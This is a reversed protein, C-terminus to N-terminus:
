TKGPRRFRRRRAALMAYNKPPPHDPPRPLFVQPDIIKGGQSFKRDTGGADWHTLVHSLSMPRTSDHGWMQQPRNSNFELPPPGPSYKGRGNLPSITELPVLEADKVQEGDSQIRCAFLRHQLGSSESPSNSGKQDSDEDKEKVSVNQRDRDEKSERRGREGNRGGGRTEKKVGEWVRGRRRGDRQSTGATGNAGLIVNELDLIRPTTIRGDTSLKNLSIYEGTDELTRGTGTRNQEVQAAEVATSLPRISLYSTPIAAIDATYGLQPAPTSEPHVITSAISRGHSYRLELDHSQDSSASNKNQQDEETGVGGASLLLRSQAETNQRIGERVGEPAQAESSAVKLSDSSVTLSKSRSSCQSKQSTSKMGSAKRSCSQLKPVFAVKVNHQKVSKKGGRQQSRSNSKCSQSRSQSKNGDGVRMDFFRDLSEAQASGSDNHILHTAQLLPSPPVSRRQQLQKLADNGKQGKLQLKSDPITSPLRDKEHSICEKDGGTKGAIQSLYVDDVSINTRSDGERDVEEKEQLKKVVENNTQLAPASGASITTLSRISPDQEWDFPDGRNIGLYRIANQLLTSLLVYDPEQYYNLSKLHDLFDFFETPLLKILKKHDHSMKLKGAKEKDRIKKWPLEGNALEVVLYFVSWLDDHRGLDKSQHANISAYRVTGRFGAVPRPPRVEGTSTMFQRALGFDLMYCTRKTMSSAGIAFNSPKIDRHLFGCNHMARVAAIVQVGVRLATSLSFRQKPQQKRLESLNPGLLTMVMYNIRDTRGCGLLGCIHPSCNQLRRLVVVEMKLVQKSSM